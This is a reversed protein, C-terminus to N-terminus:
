DSQLLDELVDDILAGMDVARAEADESDDLTVRVEAALTMQLNDTFQLRFFLPSLVPIASVGVPNFVRSGLLDGDLDGFSWTGTDTDYVTLNPLGDGTYDSVAAIQGDDGFIVPFGIGFGPFAGDSPLVFWREDDPLDSISRFLAIDDRGDGNYDAPVPQDANGTAGFQVSAAGNTTAYNPQNPGSPLIFTQAVPPVGNAVDEDTPIPRFTAIDARGDGDYDAVAPLDTGGAAGFPVSFAEGTSSPLIFWEAAGPTQDSDARFTAIDTLGDGDFDAQAPRDLAGTAGFPVEVRAGDSSQIYVWVSADPQGANGFPQVLAIDTLGDGDFDGALPIDNSSLGILEEVLEGGTSLEIQFIGANLLSDFVYSSLDAIGDGDYDGSTTKGNRIQDQGANPVIRDNGAGGDIVDDGPGGILLDNDNGGNLTLPFALELDSADITDDGDAGNVTLTEFSGIDLTFLGLNTREFEIRNGNNGVEFNDGAPAGNVVQTDFGAGGDILDSGDGNNWINLDNDQAVALSILDDTGDGVTGILTAAGTALDIEYLGTIGDVSLTAFAVEVGGSLIDFGVSETTDVGLSGVTVLTGDNPPSQIALLDLDSDIDYLTTGPPPTRPSPPFSNSYAVGVVNPDEGFNPDGEAYSLDGDIITEGTEVNVRLDQDSDSVVRLRDPVPNFDVGFSMGDPATSLTSLFALQGSSVATYINGLDTLVYLVDVSNTRFDIGIANEGAELGTLPVELVQDSTNANFVLATNDSRLAAFLAEEADLGADIIDNGPGGVITDNGQGGEIMDIGLSGTIADNGAGGKLLTTVVGAPLLSADLIDNEFEGDLDVVMLDEVGTLDGVTFEDDGLGGNVDLTEVTGIDLTFLGLNIRDFQLRENNAMVTFQDGLPAGNVQQIDDGAGGEIIDSGDGNNWITTDDGGFGLLTDNGPGGILINDQDSGTIRDAVSSGVVGEVSFLGATGDAEGETGDQVLQGRIEGAPFETTHLNFYIDGARLDDVLEATLPGSTPTPFGEPDTSSWVGSFVGDPSMAGNLEDPTLGRVIPGNEGFAGRHFHAGAGGLIPGQLDQYSIDFTLETEDENLTFFGVGSAPSINPPVEQLGSLDAVFFESGVSLDVEIATTYASYDIFDVDVGGDFIGGLLTAGDALALRDSGGGGFVDVARLDDVGALDNITVVDEGLLGQVELIETTGIDLMFLGLNTREFQLRGSNDDVNFMDGASAGNVRQVDTGIGGEILDSGDGNNWIILDDDRVTTLGELLIGPTGIEDILTAAGTDLDIEYLESTGTAGVELSAFAQNTGSVIDFGVTEAIVVGLDDVTNLTGDNPPTQTALIDLDSDIDFLTTTTAGPFPNLYAVGVINPDAGDNTDGDAYDLTGDTIVAGTDVNVRLNQDADSVIRLRDPVPNFDIGFSTGTLGVFPDGDAPSLTSALTAAGTTLDVTYLRGTDAIDSTLAYLEGTAPRTDIGVVEEGAGIGTIDLTLLIETPNDVNFFVIEDNPTLGALTPPDMEDSGGFLGDNGQGGILDDNGAGGRIQDTGGLGLITDDGLGGDIEDPLASGIVLDNGTSADITTSTLATFSGANVLNLDISDDGAGSEIVIETVTESAAIGTDPDAGNIKVDGGESTIAIVDDADDGVITLVGANIESTIALLRRPELWDISARFRQIGRRIKRETSRAERASVKRGRNGIIM